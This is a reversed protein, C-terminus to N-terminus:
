GPILDLDLGGPYWYSTYQGYGYVTVGFAKDGSLDHNGDANDSLSVRMVGFGTAGIPQFGNVPQGDLTIKAGTPAVINAFNSEYSLPAHVLYSTRFQETAVALTMAPDGSSDNGQGQMYQAILIKKDGTIRFDTTNAPIEFWEGAKAIMTPAGNQPPEYSITTNDETAIVRIYQAKPVNGGTPILPPTVIYEKALTEIPLMAEELRDCAQTGLPVQVCKHGGFVSVPKDATVLTGTLDADPIQGTTKTFVELVDGANLKIQGTGNAKIGAGAYVSAGTSSPTITVTTDDDRAVVAYFGPLYFGQITWHNRSAVRYNGTWIHTPLLLSADNTFSFAGGIEYDIPEYQYVTVPQTSRLRYAGDVVIVSPGNEEITPKVLADVYPLNIVQATGPGVKLNQVANDGKTITINAPDATTNAVVIAYNFVWPQTEHLNTLTAPFYDCGIYSTGLDAKSCTGLCAGTGPDCNVGQVPDCTEYDQWAYDNSCKQSLEGVCQFTDPACPKCGVDPVCADSCAEESKYGGAGDCVKASGDICLITDAPCPAPGTTGTSSTSSTDGTSTTLVSMTTEGTSTSTSTSNDGTSTPAGTSTPTVTTPGPGTETQSSFTTTQSDDSCAVLLMALALLGPTGHTLTM